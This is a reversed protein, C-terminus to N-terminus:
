VTVTVAPPVTEAFKVRWPLATGTSPRITVAVPAWCRVRSTPTETPFTSICSTGSAFLLVTEAVSCARTGPTVTVSALPVVPVPLRIRMRPDVDTDSSLSGRTTMSPTRDLL